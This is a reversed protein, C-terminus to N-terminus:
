WKRRIYLGLAIMGGGGLIAMWLYFYYPLLFYGILALGTFILGWWISAFSLLTGMAIWGVMVFLIIFMSAQKGDVPWAIGVAIICYLFLLLWFMAIRKGSSIAALSRVRLNMRSGFVASLVGGLIDLGIWVRGAIESNLFHSSSFGLLWVIGWIILFIYAGSNAISRRTKKVITQIAALAEEAESPSIDM